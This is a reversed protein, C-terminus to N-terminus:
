DPWTFGMVDLHTTGLDNHLLSTYDLTAWCPSPLRGPHGEQDDWLGFSLSVSFPPPVSVLAQEMTRMFSLSLACLKRGHRVCFAGNARKRMLSPSYNHSGSVGSMGKPIKFTSAAM